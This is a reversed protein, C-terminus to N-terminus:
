PCIHVWGRWTRRWFCEPLRPPGWVAARPPIWGAYGPTWICRFPGCLWNITEVANAGKAVPDATVPVGASAPITQSGVLLAAAILGIRLLTRSM